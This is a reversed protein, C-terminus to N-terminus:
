VEPATAEVVSVVVVVEEVVKVAAGLEAVAKVEAGRAGGGWAGAVM